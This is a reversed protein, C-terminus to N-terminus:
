PAKQGKRQFDTKAIDGERSPLRPATELAVPTLSNVWGLPLMDRKKRNRIRYACQVNNKIHWGGKAIPMVHDITPAAYHLYHVTRDVAQGCIKCTWNDRQFIEIHTFKEFQAGNKLRKRIVRSRKNSRKICRNSCFLRHKSGMTPKFEKGCCRCPRVPHNKLRISEYSKRRGDSLECARSCFKKTRLNNFEKGCVGCVMLRMPKHVVM